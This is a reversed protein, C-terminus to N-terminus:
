NLSGEQGQSDSPGPGPSVGGTSIPHNPSPGPCPRPAQRQQPSPRQSFSVSYFSQGKQGERPIDLAKGEVPWTETEKPARPPWYLVNSYLANGARNRTEQQGCRRRGWIWAALAVAAVAVGGAVLLALLLGPNPAPFRIQNPNTLWGDREVLIQTGNGEAEELEPIELAAWCVYNGSDRLSVRDLQLTFNGPPRWSLWGQPGCDELSLNGNTLLLLGCWVDLDKTWWVRLQEWAQTLVVQCALTVQSDQRVQLFRSGQQVSLSTAGQLAWVQVLLVLVMGLSGM